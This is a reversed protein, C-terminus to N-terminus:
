SEIEDYDESLIEDLLKEAIFEIKEDTTLHIGSKQEFTQIHAEYKKIRQNNPDSKVKEKMDELDEAIPNDFKIVPIQFYARIRNMLQTIPFTQKLKLSDIISLDYYNIMDYLILHLRASFFVKVRASAEALLELAKILGPSKDRFDTFLFHKDFYYDSNWTLITPEVNPTIEMVYEPPTKIAKKILEDYDRVQIYERPEDRNMVFEMINLAKRYMPFQKIYEPYTELIKRKLITGIEQSTNTRSKM